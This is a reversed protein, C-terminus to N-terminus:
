PHCPDTTTPKATRQAWRMLASRRTAAVSGALRPQYSKAEIGPTRLGCDHRDGHYRILNGRPRPVLAALRALFEIPEFVFHTTGGRYPTKLQYVASRKAILEATRM